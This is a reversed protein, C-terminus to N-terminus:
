LFSQIVLNSARCTAPEAVQLVVQVGAASVPVAGAISLAGAGDATLPVILPSAVGLPAACAGLCTTATATGILLYAPGNPTLGTVAVSNVLGAKGPSMRGLAVDARPWLELFTGGALGGGGNAVLKPMSQGQADFVKVDSSNDSTVLVTGDTPHLLLGTPRVPTAFLDLFTGDLAYRQVRNSAWSSVYLVGDSRFRLDRPRSLLAPLGASAFVGLFAGTRGDYRLIQNSNFSPVLLTGDPHFTMGADPGNLGGAGAAVFVKDFAGTAGDYRLIEDNSFSAVLLHGTPTFVAATPADLGGSEDVGPTSEDDFVFPGLPAGTQGDFRLVADQEEACVYLHGDPGFRISQAGPAAGLPPLAAGTDVDFRHVLQSTYGSVLLDSASVAAPAALLLALALPTPRIM